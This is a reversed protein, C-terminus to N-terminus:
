LPVVCFLLDMVDGASRLFGLPWRLLGGCTRTLLLTDDPRAECEGGLKGGELRPTITWGQGHLRNQSICTLFNHANKKASKVRRNLKRQGWDACSSRHQSDRCLSVMKEMWERHVQMTGTRGGRRARMTASESGKLVPGSRQDRRWSEIVYTAKTM